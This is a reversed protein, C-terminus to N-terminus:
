GDDEASVLREADSQGVTCTGCSSAACGAHHQSRVTIVPVEAHRLVDEAISGLAVRLLGTRGHTGLLIMDAREQSAVELIVEAIPGFAVRAEAEIGRTRAVRLMPEMHAEADARLVAEVRMPTQADRPQVIASLPLSRPPDSAHLLMLRSRFARAFRVAEDLVNLACDSFDLPVLILSM